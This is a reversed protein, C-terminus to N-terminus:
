ISGSEIGGLLRALSDKSFACFYKPLAIAINALFMALPADTLNGFAFFMASKLFYAPCNFSSTASKSVTKNCPM